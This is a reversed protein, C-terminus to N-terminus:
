QSERERRFKIGVSGSNSFSGGLFNSGQNTSYPEKEQSQEKDTFFYWVAKCLISNDHRPKHKWNSGPYALYTVSVSIYSQQDKVHQREDDIMMSM